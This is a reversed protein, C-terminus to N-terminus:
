PFEQSWLKTFRQSYIKTGNQSYADVALALVGSVQDFSAACEFRAVAGQNILPQLAERAYDEALRATAANLTARQLLWLRSGLPQEYEDLDVTDGWWGMPDNGSPLKDYDTARRWTFLSLLIATNLANDAALGFANGAANPGALVWDVKAEALNDQTWRTDWLLFPQEDSGETERIRIDM